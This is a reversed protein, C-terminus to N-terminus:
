NNKSRQNHRAFIEDEIEGNLTADYILHSAQFDRFANGKEITIGFTNKANICLRYLDFEDLLIRM